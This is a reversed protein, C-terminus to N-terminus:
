CSEAKHGRNYRRGNPICLMAVPVLPLLGLWWDNAGHHRERDDLFSFATDDENWEQFVRDIAEPFASGQTHAIEAGARYSSPQAHPARTQGRKAGRGFNIVKVKGDSTVTVSYRAPTTLNGGAGVRRVRYEGPAIGAFSFAGKDDTTAKGVQVYEDGKKMDLIITEGAVGPEGTDRRGNGDLDQFVSGGITSAAAPVNGMDGGGGSGPTVLAILLAATAATTNASGAASAVAPDTSGLSSDRAAVTLLTAILSNPAQTSQSSPVTVTTTSGTSSGGSSSSLSFAALRINTSTSTVQFSENQPAIGRNSVFLTLSSFGFTLFRENSFGLSDTPDVPGTVPDPSRHAESTTVILVGTSSSYTSLTLSYPGISQNAGSVLFQYTQGAVVPIAAFNDSTAELWGVGSSVTTETQVPNTNLVTLQVPTTPFTTSPFSLLGQLNTGATSNLLSIEPLGFFTTFKNAGGTSNLAILTYGTLSATFQYLDQEGPVVISGSQQGVGSSDMNIVTPTTASDSHVAMSFTLVYDGSTGNLGAAHVTYQQGQVVSFQIIEDNATDSSRRPPSTSYTVNAGSVSLSSQLTYVNNPSAKPKQAMSLTMTGSVPATFQFSDVDGAYNIAGAQTGSGSADLTIPFVQSDPFDDAISTVTLVYLGTQNSPDSVQVQFSEGATTLLQAEQFLGQTGGNIRVTVQGTVPVTFQFRDVEGPTAITGLQVGSGSPDLTLSHVATASFAATQTSIFLEYSGTTDSPPNGGTAPIMGGTATLQYSNGATVDFQIVDDGASHLTSAFVASDLITTGPATVKSVLGESEARMLVSMRGTVAATFTYQDQQLGAQITGVQTASGTSDLVITASPLARSELPELTPHYHRVMKKPARRSPDKRLFRLM